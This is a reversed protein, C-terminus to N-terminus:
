FHDEGNEDVVDEGKDMITYSIKYWSDKDEGYLCREHTIPNFGYSVGTIGLLPLLNQIGERIPSPGIFSEPYFGDTDPETQQLTVTKTERSKYTVTWKDFKDGYEVHRFDLLNLWRRAKM